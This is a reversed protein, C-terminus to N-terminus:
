SDEVFGSRAQSQTTEGFRKWGRRRRKEVNFDQCKLYLEQLTDVGVITESAGFDVIAYIKESGDRKDRRWIFQFSVGRLEGSKTCEESCSEGKWKKPNVQPSCRAKHGYKGCRMCDSDFHPASGNNKTRPVM